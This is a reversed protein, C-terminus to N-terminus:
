FRFTFQASVSHSFSEPSPNEHRLSYELKLQTHASFRYAPAVDIRWVQRGWAVPQGAFDKVDGFRQQNWRLAGSFQPTFKYKAELYYAFTNVNAVRPIKFQAAYAEAWFQFRHWAFRLDQAVVRERFDHRSVGAPLLSAAASNLYEGESVSVGLAWLPNPQFGLRASVAPRRGNGDASGWEAPRSALGATKMEVAYDFRGCVGSIAVGPAYVPGWIVPLRFEKDAYVGAAASAPRVHAWALLVDSTRAARLDWVGTLNDYPLPASIFPNSWADHRTVWNGVVTAFKGVQVNLRGPAWAELRLAYEDLRVEASHDSPDFGRDARLQTFFYVRRGVQADFHLALRPNFLWSREAFILDATAATAYYGELELAGSLRARVTGDATNYRLAEGLRDLWEDDASASGAALILTLGAISFIKKM